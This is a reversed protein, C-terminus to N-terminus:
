ISLRSRWVCRARSTTLRQMQRSMAKVERSVVCKRARSLVGKADRPVADEVDRSV